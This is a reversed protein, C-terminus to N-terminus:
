FDHFVSRGNHPKAPVPRDNGWRLAGSIALALSWIVAVLLLLRGLKIDVLSLDFEDFSLVCGTAFIAAAVFLALVRFKWAGVDIARLRAMLATLAVM